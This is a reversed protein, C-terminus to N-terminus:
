FDRINGSIFHLWQCKLLLTDRDGSKTNEVEAKVGDDDWGRGPAGLSGEWCKM